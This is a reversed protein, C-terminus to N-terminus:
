RTEEERWLRIDQGPPLKNIMAQVTMGGQPHTWQPAIEQLPFLVFAREHLRPHPLTLDASDIVSDNYALLDLDLVRAENRAMRTRGFEHEIQQLARLLDEPSLKTQVSIVANFYWPQDTLPVPASTWLHSSHVIEIGQKAM